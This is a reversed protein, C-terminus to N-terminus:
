IRILLTRATLHMLNNRLNVVVVAVTEALRFFLEQAKGGADFNLIAWEPFALFSSVRKSIRVDASTPVLNQNISTSRMCIWENWCVSGFVGKVDQVSLGCLEHRDCQEFSRGNDVSPSCRQYLSVM